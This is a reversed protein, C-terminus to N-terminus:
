LSHCVDGAVFDDFNSTTLVFVDGDKEPDAFASCVLLAILLWVRLSMKITSVVCSLASWTDKKGAVRTM